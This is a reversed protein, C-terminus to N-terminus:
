TKANSNIKNRMIQMDMETKSKLTRKTYRFLLERLLGKNLVQNIIKSKFSPNKSFCYVSGFQYLTFDFKDAIQRLTEFSYFSIHQGTEFSYYWWSKDPVATPLVETSFLITDSYDFLNKVEVIPDVFHEFCEFITIADYRKSIDAEFGNAVWNQCYKDYWFFDLGLDRMMRVFIGGGGAYDMFKANNLNIGSFYLLLPVMKRFELNRQIIGTDSNAIVSSYSEALWYPEETFLYECTSCKFYSVDYKNIVKAKFVLKSFANCVKCKM